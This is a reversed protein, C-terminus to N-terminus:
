WMRSNKGGIYVIYKLRGIEEKKVRVFQVPFKKHKRMRNAQKVAQLKTEFGDWPTLKM